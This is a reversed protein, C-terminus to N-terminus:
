FRIKITMIMGSIIIVKRIKDDDRYAMNYFMNQKISDQAYDNCTLRYMKKVYFERNSRIGIACIAYRPLGAGVSDYGTYVIEKEMVMSIM